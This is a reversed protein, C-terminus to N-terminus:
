SGSDGASRTKLPPLMKRILDMEASLSSNQETQSGEQPSESARRQSQARELLTMNRQLRLHIHTEYRGLREFGAGEKRWTIARTIIKQMAADWSSNGNGHRVDGFTFLANELAACSNLRWNDDVLKQVLQEEFEDAPLFRARFGEAIRDYFPQEEPSVRLLQGTLGHQYSNWRVRAKGEPTKPGPAQPAPTTPDPASQMSRAADIRERIGSRM